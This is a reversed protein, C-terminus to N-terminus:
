CDFNVSLKSVSTLVAFFHMGCLTSDRNYAVRCLVRKFLNTYLLVPHLNYFLFLKVDRKM